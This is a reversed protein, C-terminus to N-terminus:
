MWRKRNKATRKEVESLLEQGLSSEENSLGSAASSTLARRLAEDADALLALSNKKSGQLALEHAAAAGGRCLLVYQPKQNNSAMGRLMFERSFEWDRKVKGALYLQAGVIFHSAIGPEAVIGTIIPLNGEGQLRSKFYPGVAIFGGGALFVGILNLEKALQVYEATHRECLFGRSWFHLHALLLGTSVRLEKYGMATQGCVDCTVALPKHPALTGRRFAYFVYGLLLAPIGIIVQVVVIAWGGVFMLVWQFLDLTWVSRPNQFPGFAQLQPMESVFGGAPPGSVTEDPTKSKISDDVQAVATAQRRGFERDYFERAVATLDERRLLKFEQDSMAAYRKSLDDTSIEM